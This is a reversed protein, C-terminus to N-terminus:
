GRIAGSLGEVFFRQLFFFIIITPLLSMTAAACMLTWNTAHQGVFAYMGVAITRLDPRGLTFVLPIFFSNWNDIFEFIAVTAIMPKALPMAIRWYTTLVGAGDILASEELERPHTSFFAIFLFTNVVMSTATNVLIVGWLSNLLGLKRVLEFIPVIAYGKPLFLSLVITALIIKKGPFSVRALAYGALSTLLVVLTTVCVTMTVSNKFFVNFNAIQWADVYNSLLAQEPLLCLGCEFFEARSKLSGSLMWIFPYAYVLGAIILAAYLITRPAGRTSASALRHM